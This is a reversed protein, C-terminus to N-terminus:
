AAIIGRYVLVVNGSIRLRKNWYAKWEGASTIRKIIIRAMKAAGKESWGFAIRKLRRGIERMMREIMSSVRPTVLGYRLWFRVYSFLRDKANAVYSAAQSYGKQALEVVLQEIKEEAEETAQEIKAKDEEAVQEFDEEPLEIGLIGALQKQTSRREEKSASEQWMTYDLDHVMHWHCRQQENVLHALGEALGLEGDSVLGKAIPGSEETKAHIEEGIKEWSEGSWSGYPVVTGDTRVGLVVRLEGRNNKGATKEPRRKYGTGDAVLVDVLKGDTEIADCDSEMVWRHATSKPVPIEGILRLHRSVRRYSQESVVEAVTRELEATKSQYRDLHLFERLPIVTRGCHVCRLRRWEIRVTGITTRFRRKSRKHLEYRPAECCLEPQWVAKGRVLGACLHEDFLSLLLGVVGAMGETAFLEKVKVVLEDLSFEKESLCGVLEMYLRNRM